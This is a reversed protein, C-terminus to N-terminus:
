IRAPRSRGSSSARPRARKSPLSASGSVAVKESPPVGLMRCLAPNAWIEDCGADECVGIGVPVVDLLTRFEILRSELDRRLKEKEVEARQREAIERALQDRQELARQESARATREARHLLEAFVLYATAVLLYLGLPLWHQPDEFSFGYVPSLMLYEAAVFGGLVATIGPGLGGYWASFFVAVFFTIFPIRDGLIPDLTVRLVGAVAVSALAASYRSVSSRLM